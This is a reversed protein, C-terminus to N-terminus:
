GWVLCEVPESDLGDRDTVIATVVGTTNPPFVHTFEFRGDPGVVTSFGELLGGFRVVLGDVAKDDIVEGTFTWAGYNEGGTFDAIAPPYFQGYGNESNQTAAGGGDNWLPSEAVGAASPEGPVPALEAAGSELPAAAVIAVEETPAEMDGALLQRPSLREFSLSWKRSTRRRVSVAGSDLRRLFFRM